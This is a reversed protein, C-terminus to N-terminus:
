ATSTAKLASSIRVLRVPDATPTKENAGLVLVMCEKKHHDVTFEAHYKGLDFVVGGNPGAGHTHPAVETSDKTTGSGKALGTNSSTAQM